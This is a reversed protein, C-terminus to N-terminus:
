AATVETITVQLTLAVTPSAGIAYLTLTGNNNVIYLAKVSDAILQNIATSDPQIDIKSNSTVTYNTLTVTQTYPDSGSWTTTTTITDIYVRATADKLNYTVNNPLTIKSLDAM